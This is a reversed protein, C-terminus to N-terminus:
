DRQDVRTKGNEAALFAECRRLAEVNNRWKLMCAAEEPLHWGWADHEASLTPDHGDVEAVFVHEVIEDPDPGYAVRWEDLVPFRYTFDM